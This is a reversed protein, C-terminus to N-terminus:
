NCLEFSIAIPRELTLNIGLDTLGSLVTFKREFAVKGGLDQHLTVSNQGDSPVCLSGPWSKHPIFVSVSKSVVVPATTCGVLVAVPCM